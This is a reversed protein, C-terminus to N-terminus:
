PVIVFSGRAPRWDRHCARVRDILILGREADRDVRAVGAGGADLSAWTYWVGARMLEDEPMRYAVDIPCGALEAPLRLGITHGRGVMEPEMSFTVPPGAPEPRTEVDYGSGNYRLRVAYLSVDGAHYDDGLRSDRDVWLSPDGYGLRILFLPDWYIKPFPDGELLIRSGKPLSPAAAKAASWLVRLNRQTQEFPAAMDATHPAQVLYSAVALCGFLLAQISLPALRRVRETRARAVIAGIVWQALRWIAAGVYLACGLLPM